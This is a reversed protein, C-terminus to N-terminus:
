KDNIQNEWISVQALLQHWEIALDFRKTSNPEKYYETSNKKSVRFLISGEYFVAERVKDALLIKTKLTSKIASQYSNIEEPKFVIIPQKFYSSIYNMVLFAIKRTLIPSLVECEVLIDGMFSVLEVQKFSVTLKDINNNIKKVLDDIVDQNIGEDKFSIEHNKLEDFVMKRWELIIEKTLEKKNTGKYVADSLAGYYGQGKIRNNKDSYDIKSSILDLSNIGQLHSIALSDWENRSSYLTSRDNIM